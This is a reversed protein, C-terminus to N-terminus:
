TKGTVPTARVAQRPGARGVLSSRAQLGSQLAACAHKERGSTDTPSVSNQFFRALLAAPGAAASRNAEDTGESDAQTDREMEGHRGRGRGRRETVASASSLRQCAHRGHRSSSSVSPRSGPGGSRGQPRGVNLSRSDATGAAGKRATNRKQKEIWPGTGPSTAQDREGKAGSMDGLGRGQGPDKRAHANELLGPQM